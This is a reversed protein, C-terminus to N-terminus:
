LCTLIRRGFEEAAQPGNATILKGDAVVPEHVYEAGASFLIGGLKGDGDWGTVKKGRLVGAKALLRPSICIAGLFKGEEVAKRIIRHSKGNNLNELAGPGGIFFVGDYEATNIEDLVKEVKVKEGTGAAVATGGDDSATVVSVGARFLIDKPIKYEVPQFGEHAIIFLAKKM